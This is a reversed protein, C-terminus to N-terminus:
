MICLAFKYVLFSKFFFHTKDETSFDNNIKFFTFVIVKLDVDKCFQKCINSLKKQVQESYKGIYPLKYFSTKGSEPNSPDSNSYVKDM